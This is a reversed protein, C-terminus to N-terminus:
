SLAAWFFQTPATSASLTLPATLVTLGSGNLAGRLTAATLSGNMPSAASNASKYFSPSTTGNWLLSVYIFGAPGGGPVIIPGGTIAAIKPTTGASAWVVSQDATVGLNTGASNVLGAFCQGSTLTNGGASLCVVINTVLATTPWPIKILTVTGAAGLAAGGSMATPDFSWSLYGYLQQPPEIQSAGTLPTASLGSHTSTPSFTNGIAMVRTAANAVTVGYSSYNTAGGDLQSFVNSNIAVDVVGTALGIHGYTNDTLTGNTHFFNGVISTESGDYVTIGELASHDIGNMALVTGSAFAAVAIGVQNSYIDNGYVHNSSAGNSPTSAAWRQTITTGLCIGARGNAGVINGQITNDSGAVTIGDATANGAYNFVSNLVKNARRLKGLYVNSDPNTHIMCRDIITQSESGVTEDAIYIGCGITNNNKNGDVAIDLFRCANSTTPVYFVHDNMGAMRVIVSSQVIAAFYPYTGSSVGQIIAGNPVTLRGSIRYSGAPFFVITGAGSVAAAALAARIATTDDTVNDGLAGFTPDKVSLYRGVSRTDLDILANDFHELRGSSLGYDALRDLAKLHKYTM